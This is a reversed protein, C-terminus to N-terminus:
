SDAGRVKIQMGDAAVVRITDGARIMDGEALCEFRQDNILCAGVPRLDTLAKGEAGILARHELEAKPRGTAPDVEDRPLDKLLLRQAIPTNPWIKLGVAFLVPIAIMSLVVGVLGLTTDIRFLMIIGAILAVAAIVGLLGGSPIFLEALFLIVAIALLVVATLIQANSM